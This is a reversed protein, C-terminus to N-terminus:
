MDLYADVAAEGSMNRPTLALDHIIPDYPINAVGAQYLIFVFLDNSKTDQIGGCETQSGTM